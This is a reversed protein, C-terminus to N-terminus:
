VGAIAKDGYHPLQEFVLRVEEDDVGAVVFEELVPCISV